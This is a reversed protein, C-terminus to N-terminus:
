PVTCNHNVSSLIEKACASSVSPLAPCVASEVFSLLIESCNWCMVSYYRWRLLVGWLHMLVTMYMCLVWWRSVTRSYLVGTKRSPGIWIARELYEAAEEGARRRRASRYLQSDILTIQNWRWLSHYFLCISVQALRREKNLKLARGKEEGSRFM